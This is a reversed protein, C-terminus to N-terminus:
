VTPEDPGHLDDPWEAGNVDDPGNLGGPGSPRSWGDPGSPGDWGDPGHPGDWGDPGHPGDWGDPGHPGDWGDPGHPGDWGDSEDPGNFGDPGDPGDPEEPGDPGRPDDPGWVDGPGLGLVDLLCGSELTAGLDNVCTLLKEVNLSHVAQGVIKTLDDLILLPTPHLFYKGLKVARELTENGEAARTTLEAAWGEASATPLVLKGLADFGDAAGREGVNETAVARQVAGPTLDEDAWNYARLLVALEGASGILDRQHATDLSVPGPLEALEALEPLLGAAAAWLESVKRELEDSKRPDDLLGAADRATRLLHLACNEREQRTMPAFEFQREVGDCTM